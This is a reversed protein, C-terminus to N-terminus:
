TRPSAPAPSPPTGSTSCRPRWQAVPRTRLTSWSGDRFRIGHMLQNNEDVVVVQAHGGEVDLAVQKAQTAGWPRDFQSWAGNDYTGHGPLCDNDLCM